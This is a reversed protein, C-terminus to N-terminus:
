EINKQGLLKEIRVSGFIILALGALFYVPLVISVLLDLIWRLEYARLWYTLESYRYDILNLTFFYLAAFVLLALGLTLYRKHALCWRTTFFTSILLVLISAFFITMATYDVSHAVQYTPTGPVTPILESNLQDIPAAFALTNM